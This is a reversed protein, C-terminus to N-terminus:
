YESGSSCYFSGLSSNYKNVLGYDGGLDYARLFECSSDYVVVRNRCWYTSAYELYIGDDAVMVKKSNVALFRVPGAFTEEDPTGVPLPDETWGIVGNNALALGTSSNVSYKLMGGRSYLIDGSEDTSSRPEEKVLALLNYSDTGTKQFALDTIKLYNLNCGPLVSGDIAANGNLTLSGERLSYLAIKLSEDSSDQQNSYAIALLSEDDNVCFGNFVFGNDLSLPDSDLDNGDAADMTLETLVYDNNFYSLGLSTSEYVYVVDSTSGDEATTQAVSIDSITYTSGDSNTIKDSSCWQRDYIGNKIVSIGSDNLAYMTKGDTADFVFNSGLAYNTDYVSDLKEPAGYYLYKYENTFVYALDNAVYLSGGHYVEYLTKENTETNTAVCYAVVNYSLDGNETAIYSGTGELPNEEAATIIIEETKNKNYLIFKYKVSEIITTEESTADSTTGESTAEGASSGSSIGEIALNFTIKDGVEVSSGIPEGDVTTELTLKAESTMSCIEYNADTSSIKGVPVVSKMSAKNIPMLNSNSNSYYNEGYPLFVFAETTSAEVSTWLYSIESFMESFMENDSNNYVTVLAIVESISPIYWDIGGVGLLDCCSFAPYKTKWNGQLQVALTNAVSNDIYDACTEVYENSWAYENFSVGYPIVSYIKEDETAGECEDFIYAVPIGEKVVIKGIDTKLIQDTNYNLEMLAWDTETVTEASANGAVVKMGVYLVGTEGFVLDVFSYYDIVYPCQNVTETFTGVIEPETETEAGTNFADKSSATAITYTIETGPIVNDLIAYIYNPVSSCYLKEKAMTLSLTKNKEAKESWEAGDYEYALGKQTNFYWFGEVFTSDEESTPKTAFFGLFVDEDTEVGVNAYYVAQSNIEINVDTTSLGSIVVLENSASTKAYNGKKLALDYNGATVYSITFNGNADTIASFSTGPIYVTFGSLDANSDTITDTLTGSISGPVALTITELSTEANAAVNVNSMSSVLNAAQTILSYEGPELAMSFNGNEDTQVIKKIDSGLVASVFVNEIPNGSDTTVSGLVIGLDIDPCDTDVITMNIVVTQEGQKVKHIDSKGVAYINGAAGKISLEIIISKGAEIEELEIINMASPNLIEDLKQLVAPVENETKVSDMDYVTIEVQYNGEAVGRSLNEGGFRESLETGDIAFSITGCSDGFFSINSCSFFCILSLSLLLVLIKRMYDEM